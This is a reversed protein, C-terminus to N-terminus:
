YSARITDCFTIILLQMYVIYKMVASCVSNNNPSLSLLFSRSIGRYTGVVKIHKNQTISVYKDDTYSRLLRIIRKNISAANSCKM